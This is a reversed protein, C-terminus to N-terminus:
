DEVGIVGPPRTIRRTSQFRSLYDLASGFTSNPCAKLAAILGYVYPAGADRYCNYTWPGQMCVIVPKAANPNIRDAPAVEAQPLMGGGMCATLIFVLKIDGSIAQLGWLDTFTVSQGDAGPFFLGKEDGHSAVYVVVHSPREERDRMARLTRRLSPMPDDELICVSGDDGYLSKLERFLLAGQPIASAVIRDFKEPGVTIYATSESGLDFKNLQKIALKTRQFEAFQRALMESLTDARMANEVADPAFDVFPDEPQGGSSFRLVLYSPATVEWVRTPAAVAVAGSDGAAREQYLFRTPGSDVDLLLHQFIFQWDVSGVDAELSGSEGRNIARYREEIPTADSNLRETLEAFRRQSLATVDDLPASELMSIASLVRAKGPGHGGSGSSASGDKGNLFSAIQFAVEREAYTYSGPEKIVLDVWDSLRKLYDTYGIKDTWLEALREHVLQFTGVEPRPEVELVTFTYHSVASDSSEPVIAEVSGYDARKPMVAEDPDPNSLGAAQPEHVPPESSPVAPPLVLSILLPVAAPSVFAVRM